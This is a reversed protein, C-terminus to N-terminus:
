PFVIRATDGFLTVNLQADKNKPIWNLIKAESKPFQIDHDAHGTLNEVEIDCNEVSWNYTMWDLDINLEKAQTNKLRFEKDSGRVEPEIINAQCSDIYIDGLSSFNMRDATVNQIITKINSVNNIIDIKDTYVHFNFGDILTHNIKKNKIYYKDDLEKEKLRIILTDNSSIINVFQSLEESLFVKDKEEPNVIPKIHLTGIMVITYDHRLDLWITNYPKVDVSIRNEQSITSRNAHNRSWDNNVRDTFSFGIILGLALLYISLIIGLVIKTTLRM